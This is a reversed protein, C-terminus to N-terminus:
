RADSAPMVALRHDRIIQRNTNDGRLGSRDDLDFPQRAARAVLDGENLAKLKRPQQVRCAAPRWQQEVVTEGVGVIMPQREGDLQQGLNSCM